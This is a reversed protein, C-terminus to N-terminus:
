RLGNAIQRATPMRRLLLMAAVGLLPGPTLVLFSWRWGISEAVFSTLHISVFTLAIGASLQLSLATGVYRPDSLETAMASFQASDGIVTMGWVIAVAVFLWLPGDFVLGILLTCFGSVAMMAAATATRAIRDAAVGGLISGIGGSAVVVFALLSLIRPSSVGLGPAGAHIYALIWGWMAYLEWMHGLYGINALALAQNRLITKIQRPDFTSRAFSHPGEAGFWLILVAGLTAALSTALIVDQWALETAQASLLHPFASGLTLAALLAGLATGRGQNFWTSVLKIAPPYVGALAIGTALRAILLLPICPVFLLCFNAAAAMLASVGMVRRLSVLDLLGAISSALAGIAFGIQVAGTIWAGQAPSLGWLRTLQPTIATASFWTTMPLFASVSILALMPWRGGAGAWAPNAIAM